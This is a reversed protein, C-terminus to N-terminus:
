RKVVAEGSILDIVQSPEGELTGEDIAFDVGAKIESPLDSIDTLFSEGHRNVSTTIIPIGLEEVADSIWHNPIRVGITNIISKAIKNANPNVNDAVSGKQKLSFILTLKGPLKNLFDRGRGFVECNEEIWEKGPAIVSFAQASEKIDRIKQVAKKNTADCGIGYITDTPYIFVAVNKIREFYEKKDALFEHKTILKM